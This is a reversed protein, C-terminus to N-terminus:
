EVELAPVRVTDPWVMVTDDSVRAAPLVTVIVYPEVAPPPGPAVAVDEVPAWVHCACSFDVDAPESALRPEEGLTVTLAASPDPVSVEPVDATLADCVPRVTVKV